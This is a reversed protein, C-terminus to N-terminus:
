DGEQGQEYTTGWFFHGHTYGVSYAVMLLLFQEWSLVDARGLFYGSIFIGALIFYEANHYFDRIAYTYPRGIWPTIKTYIWKYIGLSKVGQTRQVLSEGTGGTYSSRAFSM